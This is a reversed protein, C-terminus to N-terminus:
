IIYYLTPQLQNLQEERSILHGSPFSKTPNSYFILSIKKKHDRYTSFCLVFDPQLFNFLMFVVYHVLILLMLYLKNKDPIVESKLSALFLCLLLLWRSVKKKLNLTLWRFNLNFEKELHGIIHLFQFHLVEFIVFTPPFPSFLLILISKEGPNRM